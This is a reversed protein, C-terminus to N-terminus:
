GLIDSTWTEIAEKQLNSHANIVNQTNLQIVEQFGIIVIDPCEDVEDYKISDEEELQILVQKQSTKNPFLLEMM